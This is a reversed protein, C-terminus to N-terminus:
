KDEPISNITINQNLYLEFDPEYDSADPNLKSKPIAKINPFSIGGSKPSIEFANRGSVLIASALFHNWATVPIHTFISYSFQHTAKAYYIDNVVDLASGVSIAVIMGLCPNGTLLTTLACTIIYTSVKGLEYCEKDPLTGYKASINQNCNDNIFFSNAQNFNYINAGDSNYNTNNIFDCLTFYSEAGHATYVAGAWKAYNNTFTCNYCTLLGLNYVAGADDDELKYKVKNNSLIVNNLNLVGHNFLACNFGTLTLNNMTLQSFQNVFAFHYGKNIKPNIVNVSGGNGNIILAGHRLHFLNKSWPNININGTFNIIFLDIKTNYNWITSTVNKFSITDNIVFERKEPEFSNRLVITPESDDWGFKINSNPTSNSDLNYAFVIGKGSVLVDDGGKIYNTYKKNKWYNEITNM